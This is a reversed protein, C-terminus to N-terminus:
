SLPTPLKKMHEHKKKIYANGDVNRSWGIIFSQERVSFLYNIGHMNMVLACELIKRLLMFGASIAANAESFPLRKIFYLKLSFTMKEM